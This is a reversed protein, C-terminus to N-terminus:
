PREAWQAPTYTKLALAHIDGAMHHGLAQYVLRHQKVRSMGEFDSSVVEAAFHERDNADNHIVATCDALKSEILQRMLEPDMM